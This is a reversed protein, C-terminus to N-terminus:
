LTSPFLFTIAEFWLVGFLILLPTTILWTPWRRWRRYLLAAVVAAAVFLEGWLLVPGWASPDRNRGLEDPTLTVSNRARTGGAAKGDLEAIVALRDYSVYEPHSSFLVLQNKNAPGSLVDSDGPRVVKVERVRYTFQGALTTAVIEDDAQLEDLRRFPAGYLTRHGAVVATGREGPLPTGRMHGPGETMTSSDTGEVVVHNSGIRPIRLAAVPSGRGTDAVILTITEDADLSTGAAPETRIAVGPIVETSPQIAVRVDWGQDALKQQATTGLEGEVPPVIPNGEDDVTNGSFGGGETPAIGSALAAATEVRDQFQGALDRQSRDAIIPTLVLEFLALSLLLVGFATIATGVLYSTAKPAEADKTARAPAPAGIQERAPDLTRNATDFRGRLVVLQQRVAAATAPDLTTTSARSTVDLDTLADGISLALALLTARRGPDADHTSTARVGHEFRDVVDELDALRAAVDAPQGADAPSRATGDPRLELRDEETTSV